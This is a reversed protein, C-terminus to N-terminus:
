QETDKDTAPESASAAGDQARGAGSKLRSIVWATMAVPVGLGILGYSGIILFAAPSGAMGSGGYGGDGSM